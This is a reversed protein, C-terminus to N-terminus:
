LFVANTNVRFQLVGMLDRSIRVLELFDSYKAYLTPLATQLMRSDYSRGMAKKTWHELVPVRLTIVVWSCWCHFGVLGNHIARNAQKPPKPNSNWLALWWDVQSCRLPRRRSSTGPQPRRPSGEAMGVSHWAEGVRHIMLSGSATRPIEACSIEYNM